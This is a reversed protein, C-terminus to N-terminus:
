LDAEDLLRQARAHWAAGRVPELAEQLAVGLWIASQAARAVDGGALFQEHARTLTAMTESDRGTLLSSLALKLLDDAELPAERDAASLQAYAEAWTQQQFAQRGRELAAGAIM